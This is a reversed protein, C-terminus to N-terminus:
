KKLRLKSELEMDRDDLIIFKIRFDLPYGAPGERESGHWRQNNNTDRATARGFVSSSLFRDIPCNAEAGLGSLSPGTQGDTTTM